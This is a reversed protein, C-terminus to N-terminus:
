AYDFNTSTHKEKENYWGYNRNKCFYSTGVTISRDDDDKFYTVYIVSIVDTNFTKSHDDIFERASDLSSFWPSPSTWLDKHKQYPLSLDSQTFCEVFYSKNKLYWFGFLVMILLELLAVILTIIEM